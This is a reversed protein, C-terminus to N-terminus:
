LENEDVELIKLLRKLKGDINQVIKDQKLVKEENGKTLDSLFKVEKRLLKVEDGLKHLVEAYGKIEAVVKEGEKDDRFISM